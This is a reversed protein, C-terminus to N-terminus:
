KLASVNNKGGNKKGGTFSSIFCYLNLHSHARSRRTLRSEAEQCLLYLTVERTDRELVKKTGGRM